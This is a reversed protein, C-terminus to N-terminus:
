DRQNLRIKFIKYPSTRKNVGDNFEPQKDIQSCSIYLYGDKSIQYSDPWILREDEIFVSMKLTTDIRVIRHKELDGLYVNGLSDIELGDSTTFHGLDQVKAGLALPNMSTDRLFRTEILYLKDDTLSKYYLIKGDHTLAIGDSNGKFDVGNKKVVRGDISFVYSPDATVSSHGQLVQRAKGTNLDVVVIGGESSNTLYATNSPNDVRVDNIYSQDDTIGALSYSREIKGTALSIKVLKQGHQYVGKQFPSAPDVVWLNNSDDIRVAQVCVWKHIGSDPPQWTNALSDPYPNKGNNVKIEIVSVGHTKSWLPYNTFLRGEQSVAVGTLQFSNDQFVQILKDSQTVAANKTQNTCSIGWAMITFLFLCGLIGKM